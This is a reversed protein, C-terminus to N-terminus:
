HQRCRRRRDGRARTRLNANALKLSLGATPGDNGRLRLSGKTSLDLSGATLRGEVAMEDDISGNASFNSGGPASTSRSSGTSASSNSWRAATAPMSMGPSTSSPQRSSASIPSRSPRGPWRGRRGQLEIKFAGVNGDFRFAATNPTGATSPQSNVALTAHLKAPVLGSAKRRLEDAFQPAVKEALMAVGDLARADLNLEINGRPSQTRTDIHGKVSLSAGGLDAVALREIDLGDGNFRMHVDAGTAEVGGLSARDVKVALVGERPWQFANDGFM